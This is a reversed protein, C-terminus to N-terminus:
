KLRVTELNKPVATEIRNVRYISSALDLSRSVEGHNILIKKPRPNCKHVYSMLQKRDSHGTFGELTVIEMKVNMTETKNSGVVFTIDKEGQQLRRGLTGAAQYCMFFLTNKSFSAFERLYEVSPGGQLMGSTALVVCKGENEIVEKREKGSGVRKFIESLFPNENQQFILSRVNSNLYEPYASHIATVDWVMGDVFIPVKELAGTRMYYELILMVEQARGVGLVPVLVRGGRAFTENVKQIFIDECEKRSMLVNDKGGYTSEIMLTELRPFDTVAPDLLHTKAFKMDGSYVLNHLGNGVHIHTMASGLIHGANYFTIRIDPTIDTVEEYNITITHLVMQKIDDTSFLPDKETDNRQVKVFDLALLASVDRTPPTCYMPGRYGYKYLYPVFGCHDLHSHSVIVADLDQINFEPADLYPYAESDSQSVDIGCDLLIRSEPTQLFICSRGVHRGSGLYTVRVWEHKKERIWGDYIRHGVKDLFKRRYEANEYMVARINEIIKSKIPPTRRILPIWFTTEKIEKLISGQKGIALGPKDVEIIVRARPKDFIIQAIESEEPILKRIIKEAKEADLSIDPDPRLEVRKKILDVVQKITGENNALYEKDKTYVVINAGEFAVDSIKNEPLNKLIEKIIKNTKSPSIGNGNTGM